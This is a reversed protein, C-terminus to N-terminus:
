SLKHGSLSESRGDGSYIHSSAAQVAKELWASKLDEAITIFRETKQSM